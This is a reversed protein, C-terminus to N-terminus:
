LPFLRCNKLSSEDILAMFLRDLGLAIGSAPPMGGTMDKLLQTDIPSPRQKIHEEFIKKQEEAQNVEYFANALELGKWYLEFRDAWGESNIQAFARLQPPYDYIFFLTKKPLKPEIKNLFLIFFLDEFQAKKPAILGKKQILKKLDQKSSEPTLSFNLHKKFLDKMSKFEAKLKQEQCKPHCFKQKQLFLILEYCERMLEKTSYFARYWELLSFEVQHITNPAENRYCTKIEFFDTWDQCLLRKLHMEPSSALYFNKFSSKLFELHPETGPCKVLSPTSSYALGKGIFFSEIAKLFERWNQLIKGKQQYSFKQEKYVASSLLYFRGINYKSSSKTKLELALWSGEKISPSKKSYFAKYFAESKKCTISLGQSKLFFSQSNWNFFRGAVYCPVPKKEYFFRPLSLLTKM